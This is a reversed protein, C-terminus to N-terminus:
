DLANIDHVPNEASFQTITSTSIDDAVPQMSMWVYLAYSLCMSQILENCACPYTASLSNYFSNESNMTSTIDPFTSWDDYKAYMYGGLLLLGTSDDSGGDFKFGFTNQNVTSLNQM